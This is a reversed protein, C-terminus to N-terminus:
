CPPLTIRGAALKNTNSSDQVFLKSGAPNAIAYTWYWPVIRSVNVDAYRVLEQFQYYGRAVHGEPIDGRGTGPKAVHSPTDFSWIAGGDSILDEDNDNDDDKVAFPTCVTSAVKVGAPDYILDRGDFDRTFNFSERQGAANPKLKRSFDTHVIGSPVITGKFVIGGYAIVEDLLRHGLFQLDNQGPIFRQDPRGDPVLSLVGNRIGVQDKFYARMSRPTLTLTPSVPIPRGSNAKPRFKLVTDVDGSVFPDLDVRFVTFDFTGPVPNGGIKATITMNRAASSVGGGYITIKQGNTVSMTTATRASDFFATGTGSTGKRSITLVATKTTPVVIVELEKIGGPLGLSTDRAAVVLDSSRTNNRFGVYPQPPPPNPPNFGGGIVIIPNSECTGLTFEQLTGDQLVDYRVCTNSADCLGGGLACDTSSLSQAGAGWAFLMMFGLAYTKLSM